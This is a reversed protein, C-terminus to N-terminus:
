RVVDWGVKAILAVIVAQFVRRVFSSGQGLALRAGVTSGAMNAAAMPLSWAWKVNGTSAFILVAALNTAVNVAKAAGSAAVFDLGLTAIFAFILFTGTGPGVLGDYFGILGGLLAGLAPREVTHAVAGYAPRVFTFGAVLVLVVLVIPKFLASDVHRALEAGLGSGFFAALAAGGVSRWPLRVSRAYRLCAVSTGFISSVKNTGLVTVPAEHPLLAFLAPLQILGGGGAMADVLGALFAAGCALLLGSVGV